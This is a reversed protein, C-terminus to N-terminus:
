KTRYVEVGRQQKELVENKLWEIQRRRNGLNQRVNNDFADFQKIGKEQLQQKPAAPKKMPAPRYREPRHVGEGRFFAYEDGSKVIVTAKGILSDGVYIGRLDTDGSRLRQDGSGVVKVHANGVFAGDRKVNVRIRGAAFAEQAEISLNSRLVMGSAVHDGSRAVVLYAGAEDLPLELKTKRDRYDKGDGLEVTREAHPKIGHLMIDRINNLSKNLVYLRMLDVRYVKIAVRELNRHGIELELDKGVGFTSVEPLTLAKRRFYEAAEQADSFKEVVADYKELAEAPAGLAHHIQGQLYVAHFKNESAARGGDARSFQETAVRELIPFADSGRGRAFEAYGVTYLLEDELSSDPYRSLAAKAVALAGDLDGAEVLTTTWAFSVEEALPDEPFWVLFDRFTRVATGRLEDRRGVRPDVAVGNPLGAALEALKQGISYLSIRMTNLDPYTGLLRHLFRLSAKVEGLNELTTAVAAEKLFSAEATARFVLLAAEFEGLDIYAQGVALIKDFPIVLDPLRDKLEEFYRVVGKSDSQAISVFLMMRAVHKFTRDNLSWGEVLQRLHGGAEDYQEAEFYAKGLAFLEDPTLRYEDRSTEGRPLVDLKMAPGYAVVDPRVAGYVQTPLARYSGPFRAQLEYEISGSRVGDRYYFVLRDPEVTMHDYSGRISDVPVTCGAPIPEEVVLPSMGRKMAADRLYFSTSVRGTEGVPLQTMPNSFSKYRGSVVGFGPRVVKGDHRRYAPIYTRRTRVLRDARDSKTFGKAFGRLVASYHAKGRGRLRLEVRNAGAKLWDAPADFGVTGAKHTRPVVALRQGNVLIEIEAENAAARDRGGATVIAAIAASTAEPTGWSAGRRQKEIWALARQAVADKANGLLLARTAIAVAEIDTASPKDALKLKTRMATAVEGAMEPRGAAHWALALRGLHGLSMNARRRHLSNLTEFRARGCASLAEAVFVRQDDRLRRLQQLLWEAARSQADQAATIGHKACGAFFRAVAATTQLDTHKRGIWAFGGDERQAGLLTSLCSQVVAELRALEAPGRGGATGLYDIVSLAALGRHALSRQTIDVRRCNRPRYGQGIAAAVLDRGSDPGVEVRLGLGSYDGDPLELSFTTGDVIAGARGDRREVGFPRIIVDDRLADGGGGTLSADLVFPVTGTAELEFAEARERGAPVTVDFRETKETKDGRRIAVSLQGSLEADSTNHAHLRVTTRDGETLVSPSVVDVQAPKATRVISKAQGVFTDRTVGRATIRWETTNHPLRVSVVGKGNANTRVSSVWGGSESFEVRPEDSPAVEPLRRFATGLMPGGPADLLPVRDSRSQGQKKGGRRGGFAGGAGGGLGVASNWQNSDFASEKSDSLEELEEVAESRVPRGARNRGRAMERDAVGVGAFFDDGSPLGKDSAAAKREELVRQEEALLDKSVRRSPGDYAWSCSSTTRFETERRHGYFFPGIDPTRDSFLSLLSEDVLALAIEAEVPRGEPDKAIVEVEVTEGPKVEGQKPKVELQLDRTVAFEREATRLSTGDIMALALAFNPAHLSELRLELESEGAPLRVAEYALIGDGQIARLALKAKTRNAVKVRVTEGVEFKQRDSLLRLKVQDDDGSVTLSTSGSVSNGFRDECVVRVIHSGGKEALLSVNASGDAARTEFRKRAVEVEAVKTGTVERRLLVLEGRRALKKGSRDVIQITAEFPEGALYVDRILSVAPTFETTVVPVVLRDTAKEEVLAVDIVAMAEEPFEETGFDFPVRGEANTKGTQVRDRGDPAHLTIRVDKGIAPEGFFYRVAVHGELREGRFAVAREPVAEISLRPLEYRAVEFSSTFATGSPPRVTLRWRGLDAQSPIAIDTAFTGFETYRIERRDVLRGSASTVDLSYGEAAPLIYLGEKVERVIGKIRVVQGPQYTPRDTFVYGKATLGTAYGLGSLDLSSAGSGAANVVFARLNACKQLEDGRYRWVGQADTEGEAVIRKGNSLVVKVGGEVREEKLNQTFIFFEQRSTKAIMGLDTVLVMTTAEFERDDVKVVYAGPESYGIDVTRESEQFKKYDSVASEFTKDPEIVEIDLREVAGPVHTARFWTELDLRYVRVRVKEINRSTLKFGAPEGSRFTRETKLHLHKRELKAIQARARPAWSGWKVARYAALAKVYNFIKTEYIEGIRYQARSSAEHGPYKSVCREYAGLASEFQEEFFLMEGYNLLISPNRADLPYDRAFAEYLKRADGFREKGAEFALTAKRFEADVIARQVREWQNHAPFAQLYARWAAIADDLKGQSHLVDGVLASAEARQEPSEGADRALFARLSALALETRGGHQQCKAILFDAIKAKPHEPYREALERLATVARDLNSRSPQPVGFTKAIEYAADAAESSSPALAILDRLVTRARSGDRSAARARGLALMARLQGQERSLEKTLPVLRRIADKHNGGALRAEAALLRVSLAKAKSLGLDLALDYFTVARDHDKKDAALAKAALGLYTEAIEEKRKAGTLREIEERYLAASEQFRKASALAEAQQLRAKAVLESNPYDTLLKRYDAVAGEVDGALWRARALLLLVDDKDPAEAEGLATQLHGVADAYKRQILADRGKQLSDQIAVFAALALLVLVVLPRFRAM